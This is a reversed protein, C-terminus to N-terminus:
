ALLDKMVTGHEVLPIPRQQPDLVTTEPDIGLLHYITALVDKPSTPKDAPFMGQDDTKGIVAGEKIGAGVFFNTYSGAWHDRGGGGQPGAGDYGKNFKPTRGHETLVCVLTDKLLGRDTMDRLLANFAMDFGPCLETELRNKLFVHTDWAANTLNYEDWFVTVVRGGAEILRRAALTAQGFLTMGYSERVSMPEAQINMANRLKESTLLNMALQQSRSWAQAEDSDDLMRRQDDFQGLISRRRSLRDVTINRATQGPMFQFKTEPTIGGYPNERGQGFPDAGTSKGEWSATTPAWRTGLWHPQPGPRTFRHPLILNTPVPNDPLGEARRRQTDIYDVLSGFYPWHRPDRPNTELALDTQGMGTLTYAVTHLPWEHTLSRVTSVKNMWKGMRPLLPSLDIDPNNTRVPKYLGRIDEPADPKMDWLDLHPPSGYLFLILVNKAKGFSKTQVTFAPESAQVQQMALIDALSLGMMSMGGAQLLDRRTIGDCLRSGNSLVRLM